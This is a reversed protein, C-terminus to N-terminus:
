MSIVNKMSINSCFSQEHLLLLKPQLEMSDNKKRFNKEYCLMFADSDGICGGKNLDSFTRNFYLVINMIHIKCRSM